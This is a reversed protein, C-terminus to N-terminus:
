ESKESVKELETMEVDDASINKIAQSQEKNKQPGIPGREIANIESSVAERSTMFGEVPPLQEDENMEVDKASFTDKVQNEKERESM